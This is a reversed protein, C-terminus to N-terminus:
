QDHKVVPGITVQEELDEAVIPRRPELDLVDPRLQWRERIVVLVFQPMVCKEVRQLKALNVGM